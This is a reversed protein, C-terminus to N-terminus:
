KKLTRIFAVLDKLTQPDDKLNPNPPMLPSKGIAPGGGLIVKELSEDTVAKQWAPDTFNRPKPNLAAAAAGDGAGTAGHCPVCAVFKKKGRVPDGPTLPKPAPKEATKPPTVSTSTKSSTPTKKTVETKTQTTIKKKTNNDQNKKESCASIIFASTALIICINRTINM